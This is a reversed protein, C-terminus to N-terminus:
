KVEEINNKLAFHEKLIQNEDFESKQFDWFSIQTFMQECERKTVGLKYSLSCMCDLHPMIQSKKFRSLFYEDPNKLVEAKIDNPLDFIPKTLEKNTVINLISM